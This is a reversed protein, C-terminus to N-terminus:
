RRGQIRAIVAVIVPPIAGLAMVSSHGGTIAAMIALPVLSLLVLVYGQWTRPGYGLGFRKPGFWPQPRRVRDPGFPYDDRM